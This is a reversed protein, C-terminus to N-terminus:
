MKPSVAQQAAAIPARQQTQQMLDDQPQLQQAIERAVTQQNKLEEQRQKTTGPAEGKAFDLINLLQTEFDGPKELLDANIRAIPQPTQTISNIVYLIIAQGDKSKNYKIGRQKLMNQVPGLGLKDGFATLANGFKTFLESPQSNTPTAMGNLTANLQAEFLKRGSLVTKRKNTNSIYRAIKNASEKLSSKPQESKEAIHITKQFAGILRDKFTMPTSERFDNIIKNFQSESLALHSLALVVGGRIKSTKLHIKNVYLQVNIAETLLEVDTLTAKFLFLCQLDKEDCVVDYKIDHDDCWEGILECITRLRVDLM